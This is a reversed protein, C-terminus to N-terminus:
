RNNWPFGTALTLQPDVPFIRPYFGTSRARGAQVERLTRDLERMDTMTLWPASIKEGIRCCHAAWITTDEPLARLLWSATRQYAALSGGPLSAYLTTPYIFDGSFLRHGAPDYLSASQATHGPTHLLTVTRGGLDIRAGPKLWETVRLYPPERGDIFGLFDYRGVELRGGAADARTEPIDIMAVSAFPEIGGLHDYHLHSPIVTVPLRTLEAIVHSIDRTGSGADFLLARKKGLLLYAYNGQYYRPEGIAYTADDIKQVAWYDDVMEGKALVPSGAGVVVHPEEISYLEAYVYPAFIAAGVPIALAISLLLMALRRRWGRRRIIVPKLEEELVWQSVQSPSLLELAPPNGTARIEQATRFDQNELV